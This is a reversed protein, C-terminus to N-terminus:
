VQKQRSEGQSHGQGRNWDDTVMEPGMQVGLAGYMGRLYCCKGDCSIEPGLEWFQEVLSGWSFENKDRSVKLTDQVEIEIM